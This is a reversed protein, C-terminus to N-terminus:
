LPASHWAGDRRIYNAGDVSVTTGDTIYLLGDKVGFAGNQIRFVHNEIGPLAATLKVELYGNSGLKVKSGDMSSVVGEGAIEYAYKRFETYKDGSYKEDLAPHAPANLFLPNQATQSYYNLLNFEILDATKTPMTGSSGAPLAAQQEQLPRSPEAALTGGFVMISGLLAALVSRLRVSSKM